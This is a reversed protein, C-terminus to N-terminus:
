QSSRGKVSPHVEVLCPLVAVILPNIELTACYVRTVPEVIWAPAFIDDRGVLDRAVFPMEVCYITGEIKPPLNVVDGESWCLDQGRAPKSMCLQKNPSDAKELHIDWVTLNVVRVLGLKTQVKAVNSLGTAKHKCNHQGPRVQTEGQKCPKDLGNITGVAGSQEWLKWFRGEPDNFKSYNVM